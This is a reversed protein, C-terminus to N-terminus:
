YAVLEMTVKGSADKLTLKTGQISYGGITSLLELFATEQDMLGDCFMMTSAADGISLSDGDVTYSASYNNCGSFGAVVGDGSPEGAMFEGTLQVGGTPSAMGGSAADYYSRVQQVTGVLPDAATEDGRNTLWVAVLALIAIIAIAVM